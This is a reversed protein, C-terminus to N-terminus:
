SEQKRLFSLIMWISLISLAGWLIWWLYNTAIVPMTNGTLVIGSWYYPHSLLLDENSELYALKAQRLAEKKSLGESLNKYFNTMIESTSQDNIKWLTTVIASAGAYNFARALSLMGEGKQLKGIGTQCASLTVLDANIQYNYLDKVYLLNSFTSDNSFALYSYDPYEDNASAHTAFHLLGYKSVESNFSKISAQDGSFIKGKFYHAIQQAEQQNYLLPSMDTRQQNYAITEGNFQPAFVLLKSDKNTLKKNHEQVLTASSAYSISHTKLLYSSNKTSTVLADFPIYHLLDDAIILLDTAKTKQLAPKLIAKYVTYSDDFVSTDEINLTSSKRYLRQITNQLDNTYPLKLVTKQNVDILTLYLGSETVLYSLVAQNKDLQQQITNLSVVDSRYKLDYYKPYEKEIKLLYNYYTEKLSSLSDMISKNASKENFIEQELHSINARFQQEKTITAEPIQGYKTAEANRIAELLFISKSKEMFFFADDVYSDDETKEYLEHAITVMKQISPYTKEILFQKDLKNEFEPRLEDLTKIIAKSTQHANKLQKINTTSLYAKHLADLKEKLISILVTKSNVKKPNPNADFDTSNFDEELQILAKQYQKLGSDVKQQVMFLNGLRAHVTAIDQHKQHNQYMKTKELSKKYYSEARQYEKLGLYADGYILDIEREFPNDNPYYKSSEKLTQLTQKYRKQQIYNEALLKYVSLINNKYIPDKGKAKYFTLVEKLLVNAKSFEEKEVYVLSLLKKTNFLRSKWGEISDKHKNLLALDNNFTYTALEYKASHKYILGLYSYISSLMIIDDVEQEKKPIASIKAKLKQFYFKSKTYQKIKYNYNGKDFLYYDRYYQKYSFTDLRKDGYLLKEQRLLNKNYNDLDYFHGNANLLYQFSSLLFDLNNDKDAIRIAEEYYFYASDKNIYHYDIAKNYVENLKTESQQSYVGQPFTFFFTLFIVRTKM